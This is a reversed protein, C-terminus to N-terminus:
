DDDGKRLAGRLLRILDRATTRCIVLAALAYAVGGVAIEVLLYVIPRDVDLAALVRSTAVVAGTMVACAALPQAFGLFMRWVSPGERAVLLVGAISTAGFAIGVACAAVRLGYPALVIFGGLLVGIKALELYMLRGTRAQAEMYASLVWMVPRFVSLGALVLLLPGVEQWRDAPLIVAILPKGILGLGIAMPFIILSLIASSRELAQARREPPLASMSPMLVVALQEGVQIAPIDALNYAMNYCGTAADGFLKMVALNDWTRSASHAIGQLALPAGYRLMDKVREWRIPSPTAWARVGAANILIGTVVTSQVINAYVIAMGGLGRWALLLAAATYSAEGLSMAMGSARFKMQRTLVREPMAGIRRIFIALALGPIYQEATPADLLHTFHAGFLAIAGLSLVGLGVYFATAQFTVAEADEGRGRVVAWQGFGWISLWNATMCLITAASVEGVVGPAIFRTIILTGLVGIARGGISSAITWLAGRAAQQAISM